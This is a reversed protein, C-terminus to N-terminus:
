DDNELSDLENELDELESELGELDSELNEVTEVLDNYEQCDDLDYDSEYDSKACRYAIPDCSKLVDSPYFTMGMLEVTPYCDDLFDDYEAETVEYEFCDVEKQAIAIDRKLAEIEGQKMEIANNLTEIKTNLTTMDNGKLLNNLHVKLAEHKAQYLHM